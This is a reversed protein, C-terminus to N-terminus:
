QNLGSCTRKREGLTIFFGFVKHPKTLDQDRGPHQFSAEARGMSNVEETTPNTYSSEDM